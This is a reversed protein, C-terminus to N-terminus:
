LNFLICSALGSGRVNRQAFHPASNEHAFDPAHQHASSLKRSGSGFLPLSQRQGSHKRASARDLRAEAEDRHHRGHVGALRRQRLHDALRAIRSRLDALAHHRRRVGRQHHPFARTDKYRMVRVAQPLWCITTLVAAIAGIWPVAGPISQSFAESM